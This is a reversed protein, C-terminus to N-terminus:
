LLTKLNREHTKSQHNTWNNDASAILHSLDNNDLFKQHKQVFEKQAPSELTKDNLMTDIKQLKEEILEIVFLTDENVKQVLCEVLLSQLEQLKEIREKLKNFHFFHYQRNESESLELAVQQYHTLKMQIHALYTHAFQETKFFEYLTNRYYEYCKEKSSFGSFKMLLKYVWKFRPCMMEPATSFMLSMFIIIGGFGLVGPLAHGLTGYIHECISCVVTAGAMYLVPFLYMSLRRTWEENKEHKIKLEKLIKLNGAMENPSSALVPLAIQSFLNANDQLATLSSLENEHSVSKVSPTMNM